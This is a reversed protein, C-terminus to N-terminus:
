ASEDLTIEVPLRLFLDSLSHLAGFASVFDGRLAEETIHGAVGEVVILALKRRIQREIVQLSERLAEQDVVAALQLTFAWKQFKEDRIHQFRESERLTVASGGKIALKGNLAGISLEKSDAM